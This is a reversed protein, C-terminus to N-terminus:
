KIILIICGYNNSCKKNFIKNLEDTKANTIIEVGMPIEASREMYVHCNGTGTEIVPVTANQVVSKILGKGGRPILVDLYENLKMLKTVTERSTDELLQVSYQPFGVSSLASVMTDVIVKNSHIAESGGRLICANSTKLCLVAADVTVNPRAEYIIGIVGLPVRKKGIVLGNPRKVMGLVEGIPDQLANVQRAGDAMDLIRKETLTLRDILAQTGGKAALADVDKKNEDLIAPINKELADAIALLAEEKQAASLKMLQYSAQKAQKGITELM